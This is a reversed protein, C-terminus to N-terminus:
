RQLWLHRVGINSLCIHESENRAGWCYVPRCCVLSIRSKSTFGSRRDMHKRTRVIKANTMQIGITSKTDSAQLKFGGLISRIAPGYDADDIAIGYGTFELISTMRGGGTIVTGPRLKLRSAFKFRPIGWSVVVESVNKSAKESLTVEKSNKFAQITTTLTSGGIGAKEIIVTAGIDASTFVDTTLTLRNSEADIKGGSVRKMNASDYPIYVPHGSDIAAQIAVTNDESITSAGFWRIDVPGTFQWNWRGNGKPRPVNPVIITGHNETETSNEDWVFIGGDPPSSM